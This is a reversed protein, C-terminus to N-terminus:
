NKRNQLDLQLICCVCCVLSQILGSELEAADATIARDRIHRLVELRNREINALIGEALADVGVRVIGIALVNALLGHVTAGLVGAFGGGGRRGRGASGGSQGGGGRCIRGSGGGRNSSASRGISGGRETIHGLVRSTDHSAEHKHSRAHDQLPRSRWRINKVDIM